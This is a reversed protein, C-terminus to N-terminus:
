GVGNARLKDFCQGENLGITSPFPLAEVLEARVAEGYCLGKRKGSKTSPLNRDVSLSFSVGL